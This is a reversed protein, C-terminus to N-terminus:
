EEMKCGRLNFVCQHAKCLFVLQSNTYTLSAFMHISTTVVEFRNCHIRNSSIRVKQMWHVCSNGGNFRNVYLLVDMYFEIWNVNTYRVIHISIRIILIKGWHVSFFCFSWLSPKKERKQYIYILHVSYARIISSTNTKNM